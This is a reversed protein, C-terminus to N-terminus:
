QLRNQEQFFAALRQASRDFMQTFINRLLGHIPRILWSPTYYFRWRFNTGENAPEFTVVQLLRGAFPLSSADLSSVWRKGRESELMRLRLKMFTFTEEHIRRDPPAETTLTDFRVFNKVWRHGHLCASFEDFVQAPTAPVWASSDFQFPATNAFSAESPALTFLLPKPILRSLLGVVDRGASTLGRLKSLLGPVLPRSIFRQPLLAQTQIM